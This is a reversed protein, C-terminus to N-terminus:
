STPRRSVRPGSRPRPGISDASAPAISERRASPCRDATWRTTTSRLAQGHVVIAAEIERSEVPRHSQRIRRLRPPIQLRQRNSTQVDGVPGEVEPVAAVHESIRLDHEGGAGGDCARNRSPGPRRSQANVTTANETSRVLQNAPDRCRLRADDEDFPDNSTLPRGGPSYKTAATSMARVRRSAPTSCDRLVREPRWARSRVRLGPASPRRKSETASLGILAASRM